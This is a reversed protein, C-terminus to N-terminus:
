NLHLIAFVVDIGGNSFYTKFAVNEKDLSTIAWKPFIMALSKVNKMEKTKVVIKKILEDLPQDIKLRKGYPPNIIISHQENLDKAKFFNNVEIQVNNNKSVKSINEKIANVAKSELDSISFSKIKDTELKKRKSLPLNIFYPAHQFDFSRFSNYENRLMAETSFTGTGAMPDRLLNKEYQSLKFIMAAAISERLPANDTLTKFGRRDLREGVLSLEVKLNDQYIDVHIKNKLSPTEKPAVKIPNHKISQDIAKTVRDKLLSTNILKSEKASATILPPNGRLFKSWDIKSIKNFLKPTDKCIFQDILMYVQTPIRLYPVLNCIDVVECNFYLKGKKRILEPTENNNVLQWLYSFEETALDELGPIITLNFQYTSNTIM